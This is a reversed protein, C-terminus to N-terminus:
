INEDAVDAHLSRTAAPHGREAQRQQQVCARASRMTVVSTLRTPM